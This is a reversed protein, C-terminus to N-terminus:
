FLLTGIEVPKGSESTVSKFRLTENDKHFVICGEYSMVVQGSVFKSVYDVLFKNRMIQMSFVKYKENNIYFEAGQSRNNFAKIKRKIIDNSEEFTINWDEPSRAYSIIEADSEQEVSSEFNNALSELFVQKEALFSLQYLTVVDLDETYPIKVQAIIDGTDIGEDMVHCTAGADRGHLISGIVPDVGRLDPLFSPHINVYKASPLDAVPLIFPCGNSILVDYSLGELQDILESKKSIVQYEITDSFVGNEFDGALHTGEVVFVKILEIDCDLMEELVFRRNGIFIIRKKM